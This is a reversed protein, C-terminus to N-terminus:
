WNAMLDVDKTVARQLTTLTVLGLRSSSSFCLDVVIDDQDNTKVWLVARSFGGRGLTIKPYWTERNDKDKAKGKTNDEARESCDEFQHFPIELYDEATSPPDAQPRQIGILIDTTRRGVDVFPLQATTQPAVAQVAQSM